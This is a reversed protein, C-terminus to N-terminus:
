SPIGETKSIQPTIPLQITFITGKRPESHVSVTGSHADVVDKVIKTGLGTGGAKGSIAEKTFLKDRIEPPMGGGTDAVTLVVTRGDLGVSGGITVSGGAPTEPIANNVLNYLANFLRNEDAKIPPLVDLGQTHLSVRMETAYFRLIGFVGEVVEAIQCPAFRLPSSIGKVTDAIERMRGQIRRANKVIMDVAERSFKRSASLEKPTVDPLKAFLEQLDDDLLKAGNLVPMLMNKIDHAIDGLMVTVGALKTEEVLKATMRVRESIDKFTVVAGILIGNERIPSIYYDVPFSTGNKRWLGETDDHYVRGEKLAAYIPCAERPYRSGAPKTHHILEHMPEGILEEVTYGLMLAGAPNVFTTKGERDLEYIGEGSAALIRAYHRALDQHAEMVREREIATAIRDAVLGLSHWTFSTLFHRSFVAMVGVVEQNVLLPYGAFAMLGEQIARAQEPVGPDRFIANTLHPRKEFAIQGIQSHGFPVSDNWRTFRTSLGASAQLELGEELSHMTWFGAWAADLHSIFSDACGQLRVSLTQDCNLVQGVEVEFALLRNREELVREAQKRDSIDRIIGCYFIEERLISKSPAMEIPFEEGNKRLGHLEVTKVITQGEGEIGVREMGYHHAEHYRAPMILILSKGVIEEAAYGFLTHAGKNWCLITGHEDWLIIADTATQVVSQFREESATLKQTLKM